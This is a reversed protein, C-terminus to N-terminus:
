GGGRIRQSLETVQEYIRPRQEMLKEIKSVAHIVTTHDRGGFERAIAPYSFDTLQRFVYMSIQRATVLPRRRSPGCLEERSVDFYACTADLIVPATIQRPQEARLVDSLIKEALEKTLPERSHSSYAWVRTLAGELERINDTVHTAILEMVEDPVRAGLAHAKTRLIALRTELEPPEVGAANGSMFRGRLRSMVNLASPPRDCTIVIQKSQHYLADFTHFFEEQVGEKDEMFQIDDMLLVDCARYSRKFSETAKTRIAEIFENLFWETSVYRVRRNPFHQKVYNEIAFLLHTKGLGSEGHIFLPNYCNGPTEAVALAFAHALRNSGGIVFNEFTYRPSATADPLEPGPASPEPAVRDGDRSAPIAPIDDSGTGNWGNDAPDPVVLRVSVDKGTTDVLIGDILGLFRSEIRSRMMSNPVAVVWKQEGLDLPKMGEFCSRYAADSIQNRLRKVFLDWLEDDIM